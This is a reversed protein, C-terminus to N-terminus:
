PKTIRVAPGSKDQQIGPNKKCRGQLRFASEREFIQIGKRGLLRNNQHGEILIRVEEWENPFFLGVIGPQPHDQSNVM